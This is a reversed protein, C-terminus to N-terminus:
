SFNEKLKEHFSCLYLSNYDASQIVTFIGNVIRKLLTLKASDNLNFFDNRVNAEYCYYLFKLLIEM